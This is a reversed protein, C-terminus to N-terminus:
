LTFDNKLVQWDTLRRSIGLERPFALNMVPECSDTKPGWGGVEDSKFFVMELLM